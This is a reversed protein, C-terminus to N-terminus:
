SQKVEADDHSHATGDCGCIIINTPKPAVGQQWLNIDEEALKMQEYTARM